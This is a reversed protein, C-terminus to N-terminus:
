ASQMRILASQMFILASVYTQGLNCDNEIICHFHNPTVVMENCKIIHFKNELQFYWTEVMKGADNLVMEGYLVDGFLSERNQCYITIFYMGTQSYDYGKLRNSRRNHFKPNYQFM